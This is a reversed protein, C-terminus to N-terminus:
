APRRIPRCGSHPMATSAAQRATAAGSFYVSGDREYAAGGALLGSALAIVQGIFAHARPQLAPETVGLATM